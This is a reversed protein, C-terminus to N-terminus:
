LQHNAIRIFSPIRPDNFRYVGKSVRRLITTSTNSILRQYYNNLETQPIPRKALAAVADRLESATFEPKDISAAACLIKRYM